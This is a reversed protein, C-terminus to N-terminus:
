SICDAFQSLINQVFDFISKGIAAVLAVGAAAASVALTKGINVVTKLISSLSKNVSKSIQQTGRNFGSEDIKTSIVISGDVAM